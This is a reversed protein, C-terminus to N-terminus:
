ADVEVLSGNLWRTPAVIAAPRPAPVIIVSREPDLLRMTAWGHRDTQEVLILPRNDVSSKTHEIKVVVRPADYREVDAESMVYRDGAVLEAPRKTEPTTTM